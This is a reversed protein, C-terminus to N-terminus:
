VIFPQSLALVATVTVTVGCVMGVNVCTAEVQEPVEKVAKGVVELLPIEPVHDGASFLVM